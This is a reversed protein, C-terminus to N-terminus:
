PREVPEHIVNAVPTDDIWMTQTEGTNWRYILGVLQRDSKRFIRMVPKACLKREKRAM